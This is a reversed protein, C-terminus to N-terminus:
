KPSDGPKERGFVQIGDLRFSRGSKAFDWGYLRFVVPASLDQMADIILLPFAREQLGSDSGPITTRGAELFSEGGDASYKLVVTENESGSGNRSSIALFFLQLARGNPAFTFEYYSDRDNFGSHAIQTSNISGNESAFGVRSDTGGASLASASALPDTRPILSNGNFDFFALEKGLDGSMAFIRDDSAWSLPVVKGNALKNLTDRTKLALGGVDTNSYAFPAAPCYQSAPTTGATTGAFGGDAQRFLSLNAAQKKIFGDRAQEAMPTTLSDQLNFVLQSSNYTYLLNTVENGSVERLATALLADAHPIPRSFGKYFAAIKHGGNLAIYPRTNESSSLNGWLGTAPDQYTPFHEWAATLIEERIAPQLGNILTTQGLITNGPTWSRDWNLTDIWDKFAQGSALHPPPAGGAGSGPLPYSPKAGFLDLLGTAFNLARGSHRETVTAGNNSPDLVM